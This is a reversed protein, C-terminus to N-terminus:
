TCWRPRTPPWATPRRRRRRAPRREDAPLTSVQFGNVAMVALNPGYEGPLCAVSREGPWSTLLMDLANNSGTTFVVDAGSM